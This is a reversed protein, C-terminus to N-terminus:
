KGNQLFKLFVDLYKLTESRLGVFSLGVQFRQELPTCWVVRGNLTLPESQSDNDFVLTLEAEVLEGRPFADSMMACLGGRSLNSTRGTSELSGSLKVAAEVAYRPFQRPQSM